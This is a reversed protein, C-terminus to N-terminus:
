KNTFVTGMANKVYDSVFNESAILNISHTQRERERTILEHITPM